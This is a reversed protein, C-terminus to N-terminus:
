EAGIGAAGDGGRAIVIRGLGQSSLVCQGVAPHYIVVRVDVFSYVPYKAM